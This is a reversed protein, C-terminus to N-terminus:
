CLNADQYSKPEEETLPLIKKNEFDIINKEHERLPECFRKMCDEGCYLISTKQIILFGYLQCQIDVLFISDLKQQQLIKQIIKVDM